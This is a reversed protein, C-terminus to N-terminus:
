DRSDTRHAPRPTWLLPLRTQPPQHLLSWVGEIGLQKLAWDLWAPERDCIHALLRTQDPLILSRNIIVSRRLHEIPLARQYAIGQEQQATDDPPLPPLFAQAKSWIAGAVHSREPLAPRVIDGLETIKSNLPSRTFPHVPHIGGYDEIWIWAVGAGQTQAGKRDLIGALRTGFDPNLYGSHTGTGPDQPDPKVVLREDDPDLIEVPQGTRVCRAAADATAKLWKEEDAKNLFGPVYGTWHIKEHSLDVLHMWHRNQHAEDLERSPDPGFTVVELFVERSASRLLVDGPGGSKGPELTVAVGLYTGIAALRAQTLTHLLRHMSLDRRADRRIASYGPVGNQALLQLSAWWRISEIYAGARRGPALALTPASAGLGQIRPGQGPLPQLAQDLWTPGFFATLDTVARQRVQKGENTLYDAGDPHGFWADWDIPREGHDIARWMAQDLEHVADIM